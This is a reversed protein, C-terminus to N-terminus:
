IKLNNKTKITAIRVLWSLDHNHGYLCYSSFNKQNKKLNCINKRVPISLINRLKYINVSCFTLRHICNDILLM